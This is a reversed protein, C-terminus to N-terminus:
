ESGETDFWKIPPEIPMCVSSSRMVYIPGNTKKALREAEKKIADPDNKYVVSPSVNGSPSWLICFPESSGAIIKKHEDESLGYQAM